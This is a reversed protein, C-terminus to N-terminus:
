SPGARPPVCSTPASSATSAAACDANLRASSSFPTTLERFQDTLDATTIIGCVRDDRGRVFVFDARYIIDIQDLVEQDAHVVPPHRATADALSIESKALHAQAISRWSVAGKLDRTGSMVALQSYDHASMLFQAEALTQDPRVSVVDRNASPIDRVRLAVQPLELPEDQEDPGAEEADPSTDGDREELVGV